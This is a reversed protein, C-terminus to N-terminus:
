QKTLTGFFPVERKEVLNGERIELLIQGVKKGPTAGASAFMSVAQTSADETQVLKFELEPSSSSASIIQPKLPGNITIRGLEDTPLKSGFVLVKPSVVCEVGIIEYRVPIKLTPIRKSDTYVLINDNLTADSQAFLTVSFELKKGEAVRAPEFDVALAGPVEIREIQVEPGYVHQVSITKSVKSERKQRGFDVPAPSFKLEPELEAKVVLQAAVVGKEASEITILSSVRDSTYEELDLQIALRASKGPALVQEQITAVTCGCSSVARLIQIPYSQRNTLEIQKEVIETSRVLGFNIEPTDVFLLPGPDAVVGLSVLLFFCGTLSWRALNQM